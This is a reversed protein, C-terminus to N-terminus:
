VITGGDSGIDPIDTEITHTVPQIESQAAVDSDVIAQDGEDQSYVFEQISETVDDTSELMQSMDFAGDGSNNLGMMTEASEGIAQFFTVDNTGFDDIDTNGDVDGSLYSGSDRVQLRIASETSDGDADTVTVGFQLLINDSLNVNNGHDLTEFLNFTYSGDANVQLNFVMTEATAGYYVGTDADYTVTVEQGRSTLADNLLSGGVHFVGNGSVEGPEDGNYFVTLDGDQSIISDNLGVEFIKHTSGLVLPDGPQWDDNVESPIFQTVTAHANRLWETAAEEGLEAVVRNYNGQDIFQFWADVIQGETGDEYTFSSEYAVWSGELDYDTQTAALNISAIGHDSLTKLEGEQSIGDQNTDQWVLLEDFVDDDSNIVGDNNTDHEALVHFGDVELTGFLESQDNITGDQNVDRALLGDDGQVWATLDLDGDSGLDFLVGNEVSTLEIGDGDLDLVLPSGDGGGGDGDGGGAGGDGDGGGDGGDGGRPPPPPPPPPNAAVNISLQATDVDGDQDRLTYNFRETGGARLNTRVYNYSGDANLTLTGFNGVFTGTTVVAVATGDDAGADDNTLVNGSATRGNRGIAASDNVADPGDDRVTITVTGNGTDGDADSATVGFSLTLGEDANNTNGHDLNELQTFTYTRNANIVMTFVTVGGAAGTYTNTGADFTVSVPTGNHSLSGGLQSGGSSFNGNGTTAGPTDGAYNVSINGTEVDNGANGVVTDDTAGSGSIDVPITDPSVDISLTATDTDGDADQITYVFNDVGDPDNNNPTYTYSGDRPDIILTGFTGQVSYTGDPLTEPGARVDGGDWYIFTIGAGDTAGDQGFDDNDLVNGALVNDERISVIDDEAVPGDDRIDIQVFADQTDGDGDTITVGLKLWIVDNTGVGDTNPHDITGLQTYTYEGTASDINLTFITQGNTEGVYGNATQTITVVDGGSTLTQNQGGVQFLTMVTGNPEITGTGDAGFDHNLTNTVVIPGNDLDVENIGQAKSSISPGDDRITIRIADPNVVSDGDGDTVTVGFFLDIADDADAGDPHDLPRTQNFTYTGDDNVRLAFVLNGGVKGVYLGNEISVVVPVGGSTLNTESSRFASAGAHSTSGAGDAGFDINDISANSIEVGDFGDSEDLTAFTQGIEPGGDRVFISIFGNVSDGESDSVLMGFKLEILDEPDTGDAHDLPENLTFTYAGTAPNIELTFVEVGNAVGVYTNGNLTVTVPEGGSALQWNAVSGASQFEGTPDASGAGDAGFDIVNNLTVSGDALPDENVIAANNSLDPFNNDINVIIPQTTVNGNDEEVTVDINIAVPNNVDGQDIEDFQTLTVDGNDSVTIEFIPVGNATGTFTDDVLTIVIPVGNSTLPNNTDVDGVTVSVVTVGPGLDISGNQTVNIDTNDVSIDVAQTTTSGDSGEVDVSASIEVPNGPSAQDIPALQTFTFTGDDSIIVEFVDVGNATGTIVGGVVTTVIPAGGSTLPVEANIGNPALTTDVISGGTPPTIVDTVLITTNETNTELSPGDDFVNVTITGTVSDGDGDTVGTEFTVIIVDNPDNPDTHVFPQLQTYNYVGTAPDLTLTFIPVNGPGVGTFTGVSTQSVTIGLDVPDGNIDTFQVDTNIIEVAGGDVGANFDVQGQVSQAIGDSEDLSVSDDNIVPGDDAITVRVVTSTSDGDSDTAVIGFNITVTDNDDSTDAHDFPELQTYTYTGDSTIEFTFIQVGNATGEYGTATQSIIIPVGGSSLIGNPLSGSISTQGNATISGPAGNGYEVSLTGTAVLNGGVLDTEDLVEIGPTIIPADDVIFLNDGAVQPANYQLLTEGLPGIANVSDLPDSKPLSNFGYGSNSAGGTEGAAPQVEALQEALAALDEEETTAEEGENEAVEELNELDIVDTLLDEESIVTGDELTLEPPLDDAMVEAYNDLIIQSGDAFILVMQGDRVEVVVANATDFDCIYKQGETLQIEQTTNGVPQSITVVDSEGAASEISNLVDPSQPASNLAAPDIVTGDDLLLSYSGEALDSFNSITLQSGNDFSLVLEGNDGLHLGTIDEPTFNLTASEGEPLTYSVADEAEPQLLIVQNSVM